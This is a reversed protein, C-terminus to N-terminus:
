RGEGLGWVGVCKGCREWRKEVGGCREGGVGWCVDGSRRWVKGCRDGVSVM